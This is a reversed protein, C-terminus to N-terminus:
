KKLAFVAVTSGRPGHRLWGSGGVQVAVYQKQTGPDYWSMPSSSIPAGLHPSEWLHEGTEGDYAIFKGKQTGLFMLGTATTMSGGWLYNPDDIWERWVREGTLPNVAIIASTHGNWGEPTDVHPWDDFTGGFYATGPEYEAHDWWMEVPTNQQKLYVLGTQPSYSPPQWDNGGQPGPVYSISEDSDVHPVMEWMNLHQVTPQSRVLLKGTEADTTYNWGTKGPNVVVDRTQGRVEKDRLLIRPAISDYDWTDHPSEQFNWNVDGSAIDVSVTGCTFANPGPRVAGDFDPGPNGVPAYMVDRKEDITPTMWSTACGQEYSTGVWRDKPTTWRRWVIDGNEPDLAALFGRVGYEGGASGTLLLGDYIVPAWTASYGVEYNATSTYWQQEGTYRDLAVMGSDLTTMFVKDGLIAFGRNNADCCLLLREEAPQNGHVDTPNSYTYSWLVDGTRANLAKAHNPGNTQYMVPPDGPVVLPTGEMSSSVGTQVLYEISLNSVNEKTIVDATSHRKQTYDGGYMLWAEPNQGSNSLMQQTVDKEPIDQVNAYQHSVSKEPTNVLTYGDDVEKLEIEKAAQVAPDNSLDTSM